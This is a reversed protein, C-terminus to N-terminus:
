RGWSKMSEIIKDSNERQEQESMNEVEEKTYFTKQATGTIGIKGIDDPATPKNREIEGDLAKAAFYAQEATLMNGDVGKAMRINLFNPGLDEISNINPNLKKIVELDSKMM